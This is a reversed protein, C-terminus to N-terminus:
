SSFHGPGESLRLVAEAVFNVSRVCLNERETVEQQLSPWPFHAPSPRLLALSSGTIVSFDLHGNASYNGYM